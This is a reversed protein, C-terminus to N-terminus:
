YYYYYYYYYYCGIEIWLIFKPRGGIGHSTSILLKYAHAKAYDSYIRDLSSDEGHAALTSPLIRPRISYTADHACISGEVEEINIRPSLGKRTAEENITVMRTKWLAFDRKEFLHKFKWQAIEEEQWDVGM